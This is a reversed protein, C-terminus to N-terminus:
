LVVLSLLAFRAGKGLAIWIVCPWYRLKLWGAAVPLLDGVIPLWAFFLLPAGWDNLIKRARENPQFRHSWRHSARESLWRAMLLMAIAGLTNGLTAVGWYSLSREPTEHLLAVYLLETGMPWLTASVFAVGFLAAYIM